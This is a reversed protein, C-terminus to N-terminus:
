EINIKNIIEDAFERILDDDNVNLSELEANTLKISKSINKTKTKWDSYVPYKVYYQTVYREVTRYYKTQKFTIKTNRSNIDFKLDVIEYTPTLEKENSISSDILRQKEEERKKRNAISVLKKISSMPILSRRM